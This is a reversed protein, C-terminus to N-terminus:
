KTDMGQKLNGNESVEENFLKGQERRGPHVLQIQGTTFGVLLPAGEYTATTQNFDHCSPNTGKYLKKDIPKSLDAAQSFTNLLFSKKKYKGVWWFLKMIKNERLVCM